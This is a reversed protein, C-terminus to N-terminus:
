QLGPGPSEAGPQDLRACSVSASAVLRRDDGMDIVDAAVVIARRGIRLVRGVVRAPGVRLTSLFRVTMDGAVINQSDGARVAIGAAGCEIM